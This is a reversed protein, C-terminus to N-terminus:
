CKKSQKCLNNVSNMYKSYWRFPDSLKFIVNLMNCVLSKRTNGTYFILNYMWLDYKLFFKWIYNLNEYKYQLKYDKVIRKTSNTYISDNDKIHSVSNDDVRKYIVYKKMLCLKVGLKTIKIFAPYDEILPFREDYGGIKKILSRKCFFTPGSGFFEKSLIQYQRKATVRSSFVYDEFRLGEYTYNGNKLDGTFHVAEAFMAQVNENTFVFNMYDEIATPMFLDDGAIVKIWEGDSVALGRNANGATGTNNTATILHAHIFRDRNKTIWDNCIKLTDDKSSDDTVILEINQYTQNKISELTEIVYRASNYTIVIISVLPTKNSVDM